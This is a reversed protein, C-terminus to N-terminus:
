CVLHGSFWSRPDTASNVSIDIVKTGNYVALRIYATDAADMDCLASAQFQSNSSSAATNALNITTQYNRNSTNILLASNDHSSTIDTLLLSVVFYYRGTIPATFETGDFDGSQDFVESGWVVDYATSDGTVNARTSSLYATFAPQLPMTREGDTTMMFTDTTGLGGSASIKFADSADDDVGIRFKNASNINYQIYSDGSTGPDITLNSSANGLSNQKAM